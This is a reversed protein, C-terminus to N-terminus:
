EDIRGFNDPGYFQAELGFLKHYWKIDGRNMFYAYRIAQKKTLNFRMPFPSHSMRDEVGYGYEGGGLTQCVVYRKEKKTKKM